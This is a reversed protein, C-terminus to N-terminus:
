HSNLDGTLRVSRRSKRSLEKLTFKIGGAYANGVVNSRPFARHRDISCYEIAGGSESLYTPFKYDFFPTDHLAFVKVVLDNLVSVIELSKEM